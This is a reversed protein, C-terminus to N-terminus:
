IEGWLLAKREGVRAEKSVKSKVLTIKGLQPCNIAKKTHKIAVKKM